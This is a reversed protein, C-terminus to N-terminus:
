LLDDVGGEGPRVGAGQVAVPRLQMGLAHRPRPHRGLRRPLQQAAATTHEQPSTPVQTRPPQAIGPQAAHRNPRQHNPQGLGPRPPQPIRWLIAPTQVPPSAQGTTIHLQRYTYLQPLSHRNHIRRRPPQTPDQVRSIRPVCTPHPSHAEHQVALLRLHLDVTWCIAFTFFHSTM